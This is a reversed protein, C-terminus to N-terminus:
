AKVQSIFCRLC